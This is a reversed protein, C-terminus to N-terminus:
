RKRRNGTQRGGHSRVPSAGAPIGPRGEPARLEDVLRKVSACTQRGYVKDKVVVPALACSGVCAVTELTLFGDASTGGAQVGTLRALDGLLRASGRVHCATGRCVTIQHRGRPKLHFLSYFSAVGFVRSEPVRLHRALATMAERPLYGERRQVFELAPILSEPLPAFGDTFLKAWREPSVAAAPTKMTNEEV